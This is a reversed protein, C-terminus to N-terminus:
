FVQYRFKQVVQMHAKYNSHSDKQGDLKSEVCKKQCRVSNLQGRGGFNATVCALSKVINVHMRM